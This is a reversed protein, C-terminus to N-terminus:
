HGGLYAKVVQPHTLLERGTGELVVRGTQLVYGRHALRLAMNAMQEVLLLTVGAENLARITRAINEVIMPALGLSPEDLLLCRPDSMLGRSIALMQQEGGSLTGAIQQRRERLVPFRDYERDIRDRTTQRSLKASYAGLLLNDEVTQNAFIQRGQPVHALNRQVIENATLKTIEQGEFQISGAKPRLLGSIATLLTTKGAGNAGILAVIEGKAVTVSVGSLAQIHGYNVHLDTITLM